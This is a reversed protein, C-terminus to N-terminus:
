WSSSTYYMFVAFVLGVAFLSASTLFFM